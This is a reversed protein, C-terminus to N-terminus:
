IIIQQRDTVVVNKFMVECFVRNKPFFKYIYFTHNKKGCIKVSFKKWKLSFEALYQWLHVYNKM